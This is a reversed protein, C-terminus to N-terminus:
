APQGIDTGRRRAAGVRPGLRAIRARRARRVDVGLLQDDAPSDEQGALDPGAVTEHDFAPDLGYQGVAARDLDGFGAEELAVDLDIRRLDAAAELALDGDLVPQGDMGGAPDDARDAIALDLDLAAPDQRARDLQEAVVAGVDIVLAVGAPGAAASGAGAAVARRPVVRYLLRGCALIAMMCPSFAAPPARPKHLPAAAMTAAPHSDPQASAGCDDAGAVAACAAVRGAGAPM